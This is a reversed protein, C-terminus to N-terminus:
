ACWDTPQSVRAIVGLQEMGELEEKVPKMLPVAVRRPVTLAFPKAGEQLKITYEGELKGLGRFLDPFQDILSMKPDQVAKIHKMLDLAEIAPRGVLPRRLKGVVFVEQDVGREGRCLKGTFQGKAPLAHNCPVQLTRQPPQLTPSGIEQHARQSIVSVEAGTNIEFQIPKGNLFLTVAWPSPSAGQQTLHGLFAEEATSGPSELQVEQIKATSRCVSKFHGKRACKHCVADRAPCQQRDHQSRGCRGCRKNAPQKASQAGPNPRSHRHQSRPRGVAGVPTDHKKVGESHGGRLLLQQQKIAEVKRAQQVAKSLTLLSDLQLKKSLNADRIGVVIRDRILQDHLNGYDSHEALGYLATIFLDVTEGEEQKRLNFKAREYIVNQKQVFHSEFKAKVVDYKKSDDQSLQFSHLIDDATDGMTYILINVQAEKDKENLGSAKRFIEFRRIWKPWEEPHSFNFLEPPSVQYPTSM